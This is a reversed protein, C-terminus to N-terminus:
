NENEYASITATDGGGGVGSIYESVIAPTVPAQPPNFPDSNLDYPAGGEDPNPSTDYYSVTVSQGVDGTFDAGTATVVDSGNTVSANNYTQYTGTTSPNITINSKKAVATGSTNAPSVIATEINKAGAEGLKQTSDSVVTYTQTDASGPFTLTQGAIAEAPLQVVDGGIGLAIPDVVTTASTQIGAGLDLGATGPGSGNDFTVGGTTDAPNAALGSCTLVPPGGASVLQSGGIVALGTAPLVFAAAVALKKRINM